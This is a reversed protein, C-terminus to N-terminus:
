RLDVNADTMDYSLIALISATVVRYRSGVQLVRAPFEGRAILEYAHSRSLGFAAAAEPVGVAAPWTRRIEDLTPSRGVGNM